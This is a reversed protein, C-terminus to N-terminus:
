GFKFLTVRVFRKVNHDYPTAVEWSIFVKEQTKYMVNSLSVIVRPVATTGSVDSYNYVPDWAVNTTNYDVNPEVVNSSMVSIIVCNNRTFGTPFDLRLEAIYAGSEMILETDITYLSKKMQSVESDLRRLSETYVGKKAKIIYYAVVYPQLNNHAGDGGTNNLTVTHTHGGAGQTANGRGDGPEGTCTTTIGGSAHKFSFVNWTNHAHDGPNTISKQTHTHSPMEASTLTHTKEGGTEGVTDFDTDNEDRMVVVKGKLNPLGFTTTGNGGYKTGWIAFLDPYDSINVISGDPVIFNDPVSELDGFWLVGTGVPVTNYVVKDQEPGDTVNYLTNPDLTGGQLMADFEASTVTLVDDISDDSSIVMDKIANRDIVDQDENIPALLKM